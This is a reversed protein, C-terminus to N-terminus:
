SCISVYSAILADSFSLVYVNARVHGSPTHHFSFFLRRLPLVIGYSVRVLRDAVLAM